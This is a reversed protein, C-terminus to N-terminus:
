VVHNESIFIRVIGNWNTRDGWELDVSVSLASCDLEASLVQVRNFRKVFPLARSTGDDGRSTGPILSLRIFEMKILRSLLPLDRAYKRYYESARSGIWSANKIEGKIVSMSTRLRQIAAEKGSVLSMNGGALCLDGNDGLRLDVGISSPDIPSPNNAVDLELFSFSNYHSLVINSLLRADGQSEVVVYREFDNLNAFNSIYEHLTNSTGIEVSILDFRWKNPNVVSWRANCVLEDGLQLFTCDNSTSQRGPDRLSLATSDEAIKKWTKLTEVSYETYDSDIIKGHIGCMWIGNEISRREGVTMNTNYRPGNPSAACIHAATGLNISKEASDSNPGVTNIGCGPFSCKWAVREALTKKTKPTFDDRNENKAM